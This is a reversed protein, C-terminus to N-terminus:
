IPRAEVVFRKPARGVFYFPYCTILTLRPRGDPRLVDVRSPDVIKWGEVRYRYTGKANTYSIEDHLRLDKLPRFFTDRHAAFAANGASGPLATGPVHGVSMALVNEGVGEEVVASLRLRPVELRGLPGDPASPRSELIEAAEKQHVHRQMTFFAFAGLLLVTCTGFFGRLFYRTDSSM